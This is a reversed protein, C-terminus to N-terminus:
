SRQLDTHPLTFYRHLYCALRGLFIGTFVGSVSLNSLIFIPNKALIINTAQITAFAYKSVFIVLVLILVSWTGPCFILHKQRDVKLAQQAVLYWGIVAGLLLTLVWCGINVGTLADTRYLTDISLLFMLIPFIFMRALSGVQTQRAKLGRKVVYILLLYVWWPTNLIMEWIFMMWSPLQNM